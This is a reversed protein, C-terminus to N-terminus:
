WRAGMCEEVGVRSGRSGWTGWRNKKEGGAVLVYVGQRAPSTPNASSCRQWKDAADWLYFLSIPLVLRCWQTNTHTLKIPRLLSTAHFSWFISGFSQEIIGPKFKLLLSPLSTQAAASCLRFSIRLLCLYLPSGSQLARQVSNVTEPQICKLTNIIMSVTAVSVLGHTHTHIHRWLALKIRQLSVAATFGRQM